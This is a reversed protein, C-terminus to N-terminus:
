KKLIVYLVPLAFIVFFTSTTLGSATTLALSSWMSGDDAHIILPALGLITTLSTILIPRLRHSSAQVVANQKAVGNRTLHHIHSVLLIANNVVIGSLLVVGVYAGRDFSRGTVLYVAFVGILAFPISFIILFPLHLSELLAATVVFILFLSFGIIAHIQSKESKSMWGWTKASELKFGPPLQTTRIISEALQQGRMLTGSYAFSVLRQYRQNERDIRQMTPRQGIDAIEKLRVYQGVSNRVQLDRLQQLDLLDAGQMKIQLQYDRDNLEIIQRGLSERLYPQIQGLAAFSTIRQHNLNERKLILAMETAHEQRLWGQSNTDIDHVQAFQALRKGVANALTKVRLYDYGLVKISFSPMAERDGSRFGEGYGYVGVAAGGIGAAKMMLREKLIMPYGSDQLSDPFTIQLLAGEAFIECTVRETFGDALCLREFEQAIACIVAMDAEKPLSITVDISDRRQMHWISGRPVFQIFLYCTSSLLIFLVSLMFTKHRLCWRLFLIPLHYYGARLERSSKIPLVTAALVPTFSFAVFLSALLSLGVALAFSFYYARFETSLYFLPGLAALTTLTSTLVALFVQRCGFVAAERPSHGMEYHRYINDLVVVSNDVTMGFGLALGALTLINLSTDTFLLLIGTILVAYFITSLIILPPMIRHLFSHLVVFIVLLSFVARSALVRLDHRIQESQDQVTMLQLRGLQAQMKERQAYIRNATKISNAGAEKQIDIVVAPKGDIRRLHQPNEHTVIVRGIDVVRISRQSGSRIELNEIDRPTILDHALRVTYRREDHNLIGLGPPGALQNIAATLSGADINLAQCSVPNMEILIVADVGGIVQVDAVGRINLLQGRLTTTAFRRVDSLSMDGYLYFTLLAGTAFESPVYRVIEPLSVGFPLSERVLALKESLELAAFDMNAGTRFDINIVSQGEASSSSVRRVGQLGCCVAEIPATVHLEVTEPTTNPWNTQVSLRPFEVEPMLELPLRALSLIGAVLIILYLMMVAVPRGM